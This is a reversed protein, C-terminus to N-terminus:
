PETGTQKRLLMHEFRCLYQAQEVAEVQLAPHRAAERHIWEERLLLRAWWGSSSGELTPGLLLLGGPKLGAVLKALCARLLWPRAIYELVGSATIVDYPPHPLPDSYLNLASFDVQSLGACYFKSRELATPSVDIADLHQCHPALIRTFAGGACGVELANSFEEPHATSLLELARHLRRQELEEAFRYPDSSSRFLNEFRRRSYKSNDRLLMALDSWFARSM